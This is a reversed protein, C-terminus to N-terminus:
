PQLTLDVAEHSGEHLVVPHALAEPSPRRDPESFDSQTQAALYYDDPPLSGIAFMGNEDSMISVPPRDGKSWLAVSASPVLEGKEDRVTGRIGAAKPSLVIQIEGPDGETLDLLSPSVEQGGVRISKLYMEKPLQSTGITYQDPGLNTLEFTGDRDPRVSRMGNGDIPSLMISPMSDFARGDEVRVIGSIKAAPRLEISIGSIDEDRVTVPFRCFLPLLRSEGTRENFTRPAGSRIVYSGPLVNNFEFSDERIRRSTPGGIESGGVRILSLTFAPSDAPWNVVKGSIRFTRAKRMRIEASRFETGPLIDLAIASAADLSDPYYTLVYNDQPERNLTRQIQVRSQFQYAAVYYRGSTVGTLVFHGEGDANSAQAPRMQTRSGRERYLIVQVSPIPDGDEDLVSGAIIGQPTLKILIDSVREGPGLQITQNRANFRSESVYGTRSGSLGYKGPALNDLKFRGGDDSMGSIIDMDFPTAGRRVLEVKAKRLPQGTTASVVRGEIIAPAPDSVQAPVLSPILGFLFLATRM